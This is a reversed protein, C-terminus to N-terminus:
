FGESKNHMLRISTCLIVNFFIKVHSLLIKYVLGLVMAVKKM